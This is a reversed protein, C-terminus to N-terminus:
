YDGGDPVGSGEGEGDSLTLVSCEVDIEIEILEPETYAQLATRNEKRNM